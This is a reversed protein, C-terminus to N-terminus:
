LLAPNDRGGDYYLARMSTPEYRYLIQARTLDPSGLLKKKRKTDDGSRGNNPCPWHIQLLKIENGRLFSMSLFFLESSLISSDKTM